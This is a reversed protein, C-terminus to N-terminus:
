KKLYHSLNELELSDIAGDRLSQNAKEFFDKIQEATVEKSKDLSKIYHGVIKKLSDANTNNELNNLREYLNEESKGIIMPKFFGFVKEEHFKFVYIIIAIIITLFSISILFCGKKM